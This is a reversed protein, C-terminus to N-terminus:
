KLKSSTFDGRACLVSFFLTNEQSVRARHLCNPTTKLIM